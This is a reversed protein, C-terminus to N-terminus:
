TSPMEERARMWRVLEAAPMPRGYLYGQLEDCHAERLAHAQDEREVGEAVVSLGLTHGLGIVAHIVALHTSDELMGLVFSRDIKLRDIPFRNLYNLSSYGTGFDDIVIGVRLARIEHLVLLNAEAGDMLMSETLELELVGEPVQYRQLCARLHDLLGPHRLQVASLNVSVERPMRGEAQWRQIQRCAEEIVWAGIPVILGSEEAVPIFQVPPVAGLEPHQWRLLGEVGVLAGSGAAVRPQWHLQLGEGDVAERLAAEMSLRQQARETMEQSYFQASDRGESKAQYMATDAHRMLLDLEDADDPYMAIGVSCSVHLQQGNVEHPARILPILRQEVVQSVEEAGHVGSLVIIFEDGGLRSVTDGGRVADSLRKAVSRLVGDGVHHGLTDNIDKFRDLDVFLLAVHEGSRQAQQLAMRLREICLTRNPLGTLTDHHALYQIREESKKRDSIDISTFIYHSWAGQPERVGSVMLWAPFDTGNRRKLRLEGQWTGRKQVTAWLSDLMAAPVEFLDEPAAGVVEGLDRGTSRYFAQNASLVRRDAGAILIGESSAEYVKAWLELRREMLKLHNIPTFLTLLADQGQYEVRRGSLVAWSTENGAHWRVEFEDVAGRDSLQQFFRIRVPPELGTAWPDRRRGALWTEAPANAHLVEHGPIATVVIAIPTAELLAQQAHAARARATLEQQEQRARDLEELMGNFGTVLRGIEDHSTWEARLSHDGTRGVTDVVHSLRRLPLRIQQAVMYVMGLICSLLFLATGLHLWMRTYLSSVRQELMMNLVEGAGRWTDRLQTLLAQQATSLAVQAAPDDPAEVWHRAAGRFVELARILVAERGGQLQQLAPRAAVAESWDSQIGHLTADLQGELVLYQTARAEGQREGLHSAIRQQTELLEPYRLVVLSMMYYSDLDPDLILNSQNGLRTLLDRGEGIVASASPAPALAAVLRQNLDASQMGAGHASEQERLRQIHQAWDIEPSANAGLRAGDILTDRLTSIYVNGAIEKRAFDIFIFKENVLISTVYIVACLDLLYILLLKRGVSLRALLRAFPNGPTVSM